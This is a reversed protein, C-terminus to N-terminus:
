MFMIEDVKLSYTLIPNYILVITLISPTDM